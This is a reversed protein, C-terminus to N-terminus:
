QASIYAELLTLHAAASDADKQKADPLARVGWVLTPLQETKPQEWLGDAALSLPEFLSVDQAALSQIHQEYLEPQMAFLTYEANSFSLIFKDLDVNRTDQQENEPIVLTRLAVEVKGDENRDEGGTQLAAIMASQAEETLYGTTVVTVTYDATDRAFLYPVALCFLGVLVAIEVIWLIYKKRHMQWKEKFTPLSVDMDDFTDQVRRKDTRIYWERSM